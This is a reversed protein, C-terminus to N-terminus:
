SRVKGLVYLRSLTPTPSGGANELTIAFAQAKQVPKMRCLNEGNRLLGADVPKGDMLAWLQYQKGAPAPPLHDAQLYVNKDESRWYVTARNNEMGAVGQLSVSVTGSDSLIAYNSLTDQYKNYYHYNLGASVALLILSAAVLYRYPRIRGPPHISGLVKERIGTSVPIAHALAYDELWQECADIAIAVESHSRRLRQLEAVDDDDALGFVYSEIAGSEIYEQINM